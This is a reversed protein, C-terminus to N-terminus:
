HQLSHVVKSAEEDELGKSAASPRAKPSVQHFVDLRVIRLHGQEVDSDPWVGSTLYDSLVVIGDQCDGSEDIM